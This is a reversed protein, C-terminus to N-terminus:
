KSIYIITNKIYIQNFTLNNLKEFFILKWLIFYKYHYTIIFVYLSKEYPNIIQMPVHWEM